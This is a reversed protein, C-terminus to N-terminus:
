RPLFGHAGLVRQGSSSTVHSAFGSAHTSTTPRIALVYDVSSQLSPPVEILEVDDLGAADTRYVIAADAEGLQVKARVLRANSETSVVSARVANAFPVPARDLMAQTYAGLPVSSTGIVLRDAHTLDEFDAIGAPNGEPVIVVLGNHAFPTPAEVLGESHLADAHQLNASAFVDAHAGHEIQLRLVQSGAFTTVIDVDPHLAEYELELARFADTLSAAAFVEVSHTEPDHCGTLLWALWIM